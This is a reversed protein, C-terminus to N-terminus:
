DEAIGANKLAELQLMYLTHYIGKKKLLETHTGFEPMKKDKIVILYDANRLTSLRHAITITTRSKALKDLTDQIMRETQTDMAATAEDLILIKPDRLLARAISLRQREGGSLDKYGFGVKTEYADPLKIIFDHAGAAKAAQMVQEKTADPCAYKINEMITGCFLYTEQSVIAINRHLDEFAYDKINVGDILIEGEEVDYLRMLLNAITSKGVGTHGVIGIAGGAEIDFSIGDLIRRNKVYSFKVDKFTVRGDFEEKHVPNPSEKVEPMADMIEFLRSMASFSESASQMMNVFAYLPDYIMGIYAIFTLLMGYTLGYGGDIIMFGGVGWVVVVGIYVLQNVMPFATSGFTSVRRSERALNTSAKDFRRSENKERSFTKVVRIGTLLDSLLSNMSREKSYRRFHLKQSHRFLKGILIAVLPVMLLSLITLLPNICMMIIFVTIFQVANIIIVPLGDVFFWYIRNSDNNVQNMLGGTSRSTFFSVSLREIAKFITKKIDNVIQASIRTSIIDNIVNVLLRFLRLSIILLLVFTIQGYFSGDKSLVQDYYFGSTIYPTIAALASLLVLMVLIMLMKFKYKLFFGSMRFIIKGRDMCNPCFKRDTDAYRMGCKPCYAEDPLDRCEEGAKLKEFSGAVKYVDNKASFSFYSLLVAKGNIQILTRCCSILEEVDMKEIDSVPYETYEYGFIRVLKEKTLVLYGDGYMEKDDLDLYAFSLIDSEEINNCKLLELAEICIETNNKM